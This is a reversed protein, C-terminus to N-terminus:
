ISPNTPAAEAPYSSAMTRYRSGEVAQQASLRIGAHSRRLRDRFMVKDVLAVYLDNISIM